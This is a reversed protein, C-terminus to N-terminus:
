VYSNVSTWDVMHPWCVRTSDHDGRTHDSVMGGTSLSMLSVKEGPGNWEELGRCTHINWDPREQEDLGRCCQGQIWSWSDRKTLVKKRDDGMWIEVWYRESQGNQISYLPWMPDSLALYCDWDYNLVNETKLSSNVRTMDQTIFAEITSLYLLFTPWGVLERILKLAAKFLRIWHETADALEPGLLPYQVPNFYHTVM